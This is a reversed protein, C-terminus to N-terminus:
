SRCTLIVTWSRRTYMLSVENSTRVRPLGPRPTSMHTTATPPPYSAQAEM